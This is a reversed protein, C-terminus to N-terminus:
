LFLFCFVFCVFLFVNRVQTVLLVFATQCLIEVSCKADLCKQAFDHRSYVYSTDQLNKTSTSYIEFHHTPPIWASFFRTNILGELLAKLM